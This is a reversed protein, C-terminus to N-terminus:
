SVATLFGSSIYAMATTLETQRTHRTARQRYFKSDLKETVTVAGRRRSIVLSAQLPQGTVGRSRPPKDLGISVPRSTFTSERGTRRHCSFAEQQIAPVAV